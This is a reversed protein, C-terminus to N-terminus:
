IVSRSTPRKPLISTWNGKGDFRVVLRGGGWQFFGIEADLIRSWNKMLLQDV